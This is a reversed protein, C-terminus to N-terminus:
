FGAQKCKELSLNLWKISGFGARELSVRANNIKLTDMSRAFLVITKAAPLENMARAFVEDAPVNTADKLHEHAFVSRDDVDLLIAEGRNLSIKMAEAEITPPLSLGGWNLFPSRDRRIIAEDVGLIGLIYEHVPEPLEGEWKGIQSGHSNLLVLTPTGALKLNQFRLRMTESLDIQHDSLYKRGEQPDHQFAVIVKVGKARASNAIQQYFPVEQACFRCDKDLALLLTQNSVSFDVGEITFAKGDSSLSASTFRAAFMFRWGVTLLFAMAAVVLFGNVVLNVRRNQKMAEDGSASARV